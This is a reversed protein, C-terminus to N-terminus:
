AAFMAPDTSPLKPIPNMPICNKPSRAMANCSAVSPTNAPLASKNYRAPSAAGRGVQLQASMRQEAAAM